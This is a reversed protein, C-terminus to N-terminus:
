IFQSVVFDEMSLDGKLSLLAQMDILTPETDVLSTRGM